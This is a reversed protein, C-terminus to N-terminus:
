MDKITKEIIRALKKSIKSRGHIIASIHQRSYDVMQCFKGLPIRRDKLFLVIIEKEM